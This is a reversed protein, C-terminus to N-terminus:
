DVFTLAQVELYCYSIGLEEYIDFVGLIEIRTGDQPYDGSGLVFEMGQSCCAAADEIAVYHYYSDTLDYYISTYDGSIKVTKGVYEEPRMFMATVEAYAVTASLVTLDIDAETGFSMDKKGGCGFLAFLCLFATIFAILRKKM